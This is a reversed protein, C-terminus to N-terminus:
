QDWAADMAKLVDDVSKQGTLLGQVGTSLADYVGPNSWNSNPLGSYDGNNLIDAVPAYPTSSLDLDAVGSVPLGGDVDAFKKSNEPQALWDLFAQAAAANKANKTISLAYNVSAFGFPKDSSSVPPFAQVNFTQDAAASALQAVSPAPIFSAVSTGQAMGNTIADFGGGEVGAQFCGKDKMDIIEQLADKWGSTGAFTTKKDTRDQDWQPNEAYVRTASVVMAMLGTNPPASGAVVFLSKGAAAAASCAAELSRSDTPFTPVGGAKGATENEVLGIFTLDTPLGYTKGDLQFQGASNDPVIASSADSLPALFGAQALPVLSRGQGTGPATEVLDSANGAQLQTRLTQDYQDNPQANLTIKVDPHSDMYVKVIAEFPSEINNSTVYTFSFEQAGGSSATSSGGGSCGALILAGAAPVALLGVRLARSRRHQTM